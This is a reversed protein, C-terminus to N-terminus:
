LTNAQTIISQFHTRFLSLNTKYRWVDGLLAAGGFGFAKLEALKDATVGGLAIVQEDIIENAAKLMAPTFASHYGEKSISDYLPSLFVYDCHAKWRAVEEISHCSRSVSGTWNKPPNPNRRNLHVGRLKYKGALPFHDHLVIHSHYRSPISQILDAMEQESAQPKRLHLIDLGEEFLAQIYETEKPFLCPTTIVILRM